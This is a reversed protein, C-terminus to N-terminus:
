LAASPIQSSTQDSIVHYLWLWTVACCRFVSFVFGFLILIIRFDTFGLSRSLHLTVYHSSQVMFVEGDVTGFSRGGLDHDLVPLIWELRPPWPPDIRCGGHEEHGAPTSSKPETIMMMKRRRFTQITKRWNTCSSGAFLCIREAKYFTYHPPPTQGAAGGILHHSKIM